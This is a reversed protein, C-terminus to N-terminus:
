AAMPRARANAAPNNAQNAASAAGSWFVDRVKALNNYAYLMRDVKTGDKTWKEVKYFNREDAKLPDSTEEDSQDTM